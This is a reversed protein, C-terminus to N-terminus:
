TRILSALLHSASQLILRLYIKTTFISTRLLMGYSPSRIDWRRTRRIWILLIIISIPLPMGYLSFIPWRGHQRLYVARLELITSSTKHSSLSPPRHSRALDMFISRRKSMMGLVIRLLGTILFLPLIWLHTVTRILLIHIHLNGLLPQCASEQSTLPPPVRVRQRSLIRNIVM